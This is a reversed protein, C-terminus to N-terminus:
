LVRRALSEECWKENKKAATKMCQAPRKKIWQKGM